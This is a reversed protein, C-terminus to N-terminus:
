KTQAQDGVGERGVRPAHEVLTLRKLYLAAGEEKLPEATLKKIIITM